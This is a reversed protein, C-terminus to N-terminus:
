TAAGRLPVKLHLGVHILNPNNGVATHNANYLSVYSPLGYKAAISSLNDGSRVIYTQVAPHPKPASHPRPVSPATRPASPATASQPPSAHVIAPASTGPATPATHPGGSHPNNGLISTFLALLVLTGTFLFFFFATLREPRIKRAHRTGHKSHM